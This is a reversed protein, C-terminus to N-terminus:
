SLGRRERVVGGKLRRLERIRAEDGEESERGVVTSITEKGAGRNGTGIREV